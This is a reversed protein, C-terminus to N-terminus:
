SGELATLRSEISTFRQENYAALFSLLEEYRVGYITTSTFAVTTPTTDTLEDYVGPGSTLGDGVYEGESDYWGHDECWFGYHAANLGEAEMETKISQATVGVHTRATDGKKTVSDKRDRICM